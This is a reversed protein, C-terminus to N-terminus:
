ANETALTEVAGGSQDATFDVCSNESEGSLRSSQRARLRMLDDEAVLDLVGVVLQVLSQLCRGRGQLVASVRQGEGVVGRDADRGRHARARQLIQMDGLEPLDARLIRLLGALDDGAGQVGDLGALEDDDLARGLSLFACEVPHALLRALVGGHALRQRQEVPLEVEEGPPVVLGIREVFGRDRDALLVLAVELPQLVLVADLQGGALLGPVDLLVLREAAVHAPFIGGCGVLGELLCQLAGVEGMLKGGGGLLAADAAEREIDALRDVGEPIEAAVVLVDDPQMLPDGAEVAEDAVVLVAALEDAM